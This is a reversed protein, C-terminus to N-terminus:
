RGLPRRREGSPSENEPRAFLVVVPSWEMITSAEAEVEASGEDDAPPILFEVMLRVTMELRSSGEEMKARTTRERKPPDESGRM